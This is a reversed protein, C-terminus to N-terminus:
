GRLWGHRDRCFTMGHVVCCLFSRRMFRSSATKSESGTCGMLREYAVANLARVFGTSATDVCDGALVAAVVACLTPMKALQPHLEVPSSSMDASVSGQADVASGALGGM